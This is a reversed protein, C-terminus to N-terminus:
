ARVVLNRGNQKAHYLADDAREVLVDPSPTDPDFQAVGFSATVAIPEACGTVPEAAILARAREAWVAASPLDTSPLIVLFEEGGWRCFVDIERVTSRVKDAVAQLVRDGCAHGYTDNIPKFGDLDFLVVSMPHGFRLCRGIETKLTTDAFRRNHIGTLADFTAARSLEEILRARESIDRVVATMEMENGVRIKSIAVEIPFETGDARLGRVTARSEMPRATVPSDRFSTLHEGHQERFRMPMFRTLSTGVVQEDTVGFIYRAAENMLKITQKEDVTIVGDYASEVVAEFRQRVIELQHELEKRETIEILTAIVRVVAGDEAVVPSAVMRWWHSEGGREVVLEAEQPSQVAQCHVICTRLSKELYRPLFETLPRDICAAIPRHSIQEFLSNATVLVAGKANDKLDFIAFAAGITQLSAFLTKHNGTIFM